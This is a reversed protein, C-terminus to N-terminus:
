RNKKWVAAPTCHAKSNTVKKYGIRRIDKNKAAKRVVAGWSRLSPPIPVDDKAAQRVEETMFSPVKAAYRLLFDYAIDGWGTYKSNASTAAKKMGTDRLIESENKM